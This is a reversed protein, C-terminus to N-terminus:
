AGGEGKPEAQSKTLEEQQRLSDIKDAQTRISLQVMSLQRWTDRRPWINKPQQRPIRRKAM